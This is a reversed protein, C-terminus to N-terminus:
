AKGSMKLACDIAVGERLGDDLVISTNKGLVDFFMKYIYTGVEMFEVRGKGVLRTTEEITKNKLINLGNELDLYELVMGNIKDKDYNFYDMGIKVAALTTPTGATAVFPFDKIDFDLTNLFEKVEEKRKDLDQFLDGNKLSKQTMTVIGFDFSRTFSKDELSVTLETSGGGIDLVMFKESKLNERELAYKIALLTLRAEEEADIIRFKAGSNKELFNLVENSNNAKRMAATTVCVADKPDFKLKESSSKLAEIVRNQAEFSIMGSNVLGDALGVVQHFEDVIKFNLCDFKLVRFSNSGLDITILEKKM